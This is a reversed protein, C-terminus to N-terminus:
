FQLYAYTGLKITKNVAESWFGKKLNIANYVEQLQKATVTEEECEDILLGFKKNIIEFVRHKWLFDFEHEPIELIIIQEKRYTGNKFAEAAQKDKPIFVLHKNAM